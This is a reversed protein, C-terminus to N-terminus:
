LWVGLAGIRRIVTPSAFTDFLCTGDPAVEVDVQAHREDPEVVGAVLGSPHRFTLGGGDKFVDIRVMRAGAPLALDSAVQMVAGQVPADFSRGEFWQAIANHPTLMDDEEGSLRRLIEDWPIRGSPCATALSGFRTCERHEYLTATLDTPSTPRRPQWGGYAALEGLVRVTTDIQAETLPESAVGEHEMAVFSNNPTAAGSAWCQADVPYHQWLRGDKLNSLHWSVRRDSTPALVSLLGNAYGEASHAVFGTVLNRAGNVRDAPGPVREAFDLWGDAGIM